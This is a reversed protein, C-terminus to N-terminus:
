IALNEEFIRWQWMGFPSFPFPSGYAMEGFNPLIDGYNANETCIFGLNWKM